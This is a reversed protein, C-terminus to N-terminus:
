GPNVGSWTSVIFTCSDLADVRGGSRLRAYRSSASCCACARGPTTAAPTVDSPSAHIRKTRCCPGGVGITSRGITRRSTVDSPYADATPMRVQPVELPQTFDGGPACESGSSLVVDM